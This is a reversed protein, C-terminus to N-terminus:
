TRAVMGAGFLASIAQGMPAILNTALKRAPEGGAPPWLRCGPSATCRMAALGRSPPQKDFVSGEQVDLTDGDFRFRGRLLADADELRRPLADYPHFLIRDSLKGKLLRRYFWNRRWATRLPAALRDAAARAVEPMM